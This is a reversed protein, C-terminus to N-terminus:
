CGCQDSIPESALSFTLAPARRRNIASAVERRLWGAAGNLHALVAAAVDQRDDPVSIEVKLLATGDLPSVSAVQVGELLPDEVEGELVLALQREVEKCLQSAKYAGHQRRRTM